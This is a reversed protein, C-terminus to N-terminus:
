SIEVIYQLQTESAELLLNNSLICFEHCKHSEQSKSTAILCTEADSRVIYPLQTSKTSLVQAKPLYEIPQSGLTILRKEHDQLRAEHRDLVQKAYLRYL